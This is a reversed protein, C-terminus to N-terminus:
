TTSSSALMCCLCASPCDHTHAKIWTFLWIANTLQYPVIGQKMMLPLLCGCLCLLVLYCNCQMIINCQMSLLEKSTFMSHIFLVQATLEVAYTYSEGHAVTSCSVGSQQNPNTRRFWWQPRVYVSASAVQRTRSVANISLQKTFELFACTWISAACFFGTTASPINM